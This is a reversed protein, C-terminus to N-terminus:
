YPGFFKNQEHKSFYVMTKKDLGLLNFCSEVIKIESPYFINELFESTPAPSFNNGIRAMKINQSISNKESFQAIIESTAGYPIWTVDSFIVHKTKKISAELEELSTLNLARLDFVEASIGNLQLIESVKLLQHTAYSYGALTIDRGKKLLKPKNFDDQANERDVFDKIAYLSRHEFIITPTQDLLSKYTMSYADQVTGPLLVRLGPIHGLLSHFAQSHTAGQGWGRGIISRVVVDAKGANGAFMYNWKAMLNIISDFALLMFDSRAHIIVPKYGSRCLGVAIGTLGNEMAPIDMVRESGFKEYLHNTTGFIGSPYQVGIGLFIINKNKEAADVSAASIAEAYTMEKKETLM